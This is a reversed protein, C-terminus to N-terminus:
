TPTLASEAKKIADGLHESIAGSTNKFVVIGIDGTEGDMRPDPGEVALSVQGTLLVELTFRYGQDLLAMARRYLDADPVAIEGEVQRGNPRMFQTAPITDPFKM